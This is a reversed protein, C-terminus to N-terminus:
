WTKQTISFSGCIITNGSKYACNLRDVVTGDIEICAEEVCVLHLNREIKFTYIWIGSGVLIGLIFALLDTNKM